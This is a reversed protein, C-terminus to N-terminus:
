VNYKGVIEVAKHYSSMDLVDDTDLMIDFKEEIEAVLTLHNLSDWGKIEGYIISDLSVDSPFQFTSTFISALQAKQEDTM